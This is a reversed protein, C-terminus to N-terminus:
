GLEHRELVEGVGWDCVVIEKARSAEIVRVWRPRYKEDPHRIPDLEKIYVFGDEVKWVPTGEDYATKMILYEPERVRVSVQRISFLNLSDYEAVNESPNM